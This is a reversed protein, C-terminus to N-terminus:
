RLRSSCCRLAAAHPDDVEGVRQLAAPVVSVGMEEAPHQPLKLGTAVFHDRKLRFPRPAEVVQQRIMPLRPQAGPLLRDGCVAVLSLVRHALDAPHHLPVQVTATGLEVGETATAAVALVVFPDPVLSGRGVVEPTWLSEFGADVLRRAWPAIDFPPAESLHALTAGLRM